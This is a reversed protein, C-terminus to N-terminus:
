RGGGDGAGERGGSSIVEGGVVASVPAQGFGTVKSIGTDGTLSVYRRGDVTRAQTHEAPWYPYGNIGRHMYDPANVIIGGQWYRMSGGEGGNEVWQEMEVLTRLLEMVETAREQRNRARDAATEAQTETFPGQGGGGGGQQSAQLAQQLDIRPVDRYDPIEVILDNIDYIEIRKYRNLRSKPGIQIAGSSSMQWGNEGGFDTRSQEMLRELLTLTSVNNVRLSVIAERDLGDTYREDTWMPEIEAGTYDRIFSIVDDLRKDQFDVSIRKMLRSLTERQPVAPRAPAASIQVGPAPQGQALAPIGFGAVCSVAILLCRVPVHM